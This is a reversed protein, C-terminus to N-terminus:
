GRNNAPQNHFLDPGRIYFITSPPLFTAGHFPLAPKLKALWANSRNLEVSVLALMTADDAETHANIADMDESTVVPKTDVTPGSLAQQPTMKLPAQAPAGQAHATSGLGLAMAAAAILVSSRM